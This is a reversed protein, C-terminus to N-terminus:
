LSIVAIGTHVNTGAEAFSGAPLPCWTFTGLENLIPDSEASAPLIAVLRGGPKTLAAAALVHDRWARARGPTTFPPNMVVRDFELDPNQRSYVLFDDRQCEFGAVTLSAARAKDYEVATVYCDAPMHALLHGEGASPELITMGSGIGALRVATRAVEAPTPWYSYLKNGDIWEGTAAAAFLEGCPDRDFHYCRRTRQWRGGVGKLVVAVEDFVNRPLLNDGNITVEWGDGGDVIDAGALVARADERLLIPKGRRFSAPPDIDTFFSGLVPVCWADRTWNNTERGPVAVALTCGRPDYGFKPTLGVPECMSTVAHELAAREGNEDDDDVNGNCWRTALDHIRGALLSLRAALRLADIDGGLIQVFESLDDIRTAPTPEM